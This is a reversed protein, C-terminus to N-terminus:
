RTWRFYKELLRRVRPTLSTRRYRDGAKRFAEAQTPYPHITTSLDALSHGQTIALVAEGIMEGAKSAVITCGRLRGNEHHIRLFGDTEEDLVARDVEGFPITVTEVRRGQSQADAALVGVHAVEPDTYTCWPITLRSVRQRGFFLANQLMLRAMADAAHTFQFQSCVDGAAFIRSNSTQLRDNVEIGAKAARVGAADLGLGEINPARGAAVLLRDGWAEATAGGERQLQIVVGGPESRVQSLQVGLELRIGDSVLHRQVIAAADPDERPLVRPAQDLLTVRSGFRAFAQALECGIPGAGLVLLERPLSTLSFVTENTLYGAEALGPVPPATPRGGTAIVARNFRLAHGSVQVTRADSFTAQGLFVHVGLGTLREASDNVSIAARHTRMRRMVREFAPHVAPVDIGFAGARRADAAARASRILAKSPVCGVNLCDGGLLHREVIAVRAGLGAAGAASVLGATGGGVVVLDYRDHPRPNVWGSPHVAELLTRNPEDLPEILGHKADAIM